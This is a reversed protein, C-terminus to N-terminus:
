YIEKYLSPNEIFKNVQNLVEKTDNFLVTWKIRLLSWGEEKLKKNKRKDRKITEKDTFHTKGDIEIAIKKDLLAFDISFRGVPYENEYKIKENDLFKMFFREPWSQKNNWRSQGINWARGEKHAKKMSESMKKKSEETHKKSYFPHSNGKMSNSINERHSLSLKINKNWAINNYLRPNFDKGEGHTRWIHTSVGLKSYEKKCYPCAYKGNEQKWEEKVSISPKIVGKCSLEHRKFNSLSIEKNCKSCLKKSRKM